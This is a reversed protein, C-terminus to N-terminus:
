IQLPRMLRQTSNVGDALVTSETDLSKGTAVVKATGVVTLKGPADVM